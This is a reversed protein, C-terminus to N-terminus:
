PSVPEKVLLPSSRAPPDSTTPKRGPIITLWFLTVFVLEAQLLSANLFFFALVLGVLWPRSRLAAIMVVLLVIGIGLFGLMGYEFLIKPFVARTVDGAGISNLFDDSTGAGHGLLAHFPSDLSAPLLDSYPLVFRLSSSSKTSSTEQSRGLYLAGLPTAAAVGVTVVLGPLLRLLNRRLPSFFTVVLGPILVVLGNGALTPVMGALLLLLQWWPVRVRVGILAALGLFFSLFSPELFLVGNSRRLTEGYRVVANPFYGQLLFQNPVIAALWDINEIGAYQILFQVLSVGAAITMMTLFARAAVGTSNASQTSTGLLPLYLLVLLALSLVSPLQGTMLQALTCVLSVLWLALVLPARRRDLVIHGRVVGIGLAVLVVPVVVPIQQSGFSIAFRELLVILLLLVALYSSKREAPRLRRLSGPLPGAGPPLAAPAFSLPTSRM